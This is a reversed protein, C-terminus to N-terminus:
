NRTGKSYRALLRAPLRSPPGLPADRRDAKTGTEPPQPQWIALSCAIKASLPQSM